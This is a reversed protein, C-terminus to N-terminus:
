DEFRSYYVGRQDPTLAIGGYYRGQPLVDPLHDRTDTDLFRITSEDRGGERVEYLVLRGDQSVERLGVSTTHDPSLPHPDVLVEDAGDLSHRVYLVHLDQHALRKSFLYRGGRARPLDVVDVRLLAELRRRIAERGPLADLVTRTHAYQAEIWARTDPSEQDELWRYPDVIEVGHLVDTVPDVRTPPPAALRQALDIM